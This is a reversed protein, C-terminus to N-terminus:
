LMIKQNRGKKTVLVVPSSYEPCSHKVIGDKLWEAVLLDVAKQGVYSMRRPSHSVPIEDKLIIKMKVPFTKPKIPNYDGTM